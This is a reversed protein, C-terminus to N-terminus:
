KNILYIVITTHKIRELMSKSSMHKAYKSFLHDIIHDGFHRALMPETIARRESAFYNGIRNEDFVLNGDRPDSHNIEFAKLTEIIFSAEKEIIEKVEEERPTYLPLNSLDIDDEKVTGSRGVLTIFMRGQPVIEESRLSLFLSFDKQFQNLYAEPVKPDSTKVVYINGKNELSPPVCLLKNAFEPRIDRNQIDRNKITSYALDIVM